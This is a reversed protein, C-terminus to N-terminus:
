YKFNWKLKIVNSPILRDLDFSCIWKVIIGNFTSVQVDFIYYNGRFKRLFSLIAGFNMLFIQRDAIKYINFQSILYVSELRTYKTHTIITKYITQVAHLQTVTRYDDLVLRCRHTHTSWVVLVRDIRASFPLQISNLNLLRWYYIIFEFSTIM